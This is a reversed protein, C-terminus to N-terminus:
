PDARRRGIGSRKALAKGSREHGCMAQADKQHFIVRKLQNGGLHQEVIMAVEQQSGHKRSGLRHGGHLATGFGVPKHQAILAQRVHRAEVQDVLCGSVAPQALGNQEAAQRICLKFVQLLEGQLAIERQETAQAFGQVSGVEAAQQPVENVSM